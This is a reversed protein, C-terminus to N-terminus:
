NSESRPLSARLSIAYQQLMMDIPDRYVAPLRLAGDTPVFLTRALASAVPSVGHREDWAFTTWRTYCRTCGSFTMHISRCLASAM